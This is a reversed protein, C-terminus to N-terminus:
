QDDEGEEDGEENNAKMEKIESIEGEATILIELEGGEKVILIEFGTFNIKEIAAAEGIEYGMFKFNISDVVPSPLENVGVETETEFWSGSNDFCASMKKEGMMFEAEWENEEEQMWSIKEAGTFKEQFANLVVEPPKTSQCAFLGICLIVLSLILNKM